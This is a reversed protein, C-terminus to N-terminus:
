TQIFELKCRMVNLVALLTEISLPAKGDKPATYHKETKRYVLKEDVDYREMLMSIINHVDMIDDVDYSECTTWDTIVFQIHFGQCFSILNSVPYNARAELITMRAYGSLQGDFQRDGCAAKLREAILQTTM